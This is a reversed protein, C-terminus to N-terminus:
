ESCTVKNNTPLYMCVHVTTLVLVPITEAPQSYLMSYVRYLYRHKLYYPYRYGVTKSAPVTFLAPVPVPVTSSVPVPVTVLITLLVPVTTATTFTLVPVPVSSYIIAYHLYQYLTHLVPVTSNNISTDLLLKVPGIPITTGTSKSLCATNGLPRFKPRLV